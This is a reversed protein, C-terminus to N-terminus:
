DFEEQEIKMKFTKDKDILFSIEVGLESYIAVQIM